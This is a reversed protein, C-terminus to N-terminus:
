NIFLKKVPYPAINSNLSILYIGFKLFDASIEVESRQGFDSKNYVVRGQVDYVNLSKIYEHDNALKFWITSGKSVMHYDKVQVTKIAETSTLMNCDRNSFKLETGTGNRYCILRSGRSFSSVSVSSIVTMDTNLPGVEDLITPHEANLDQSTAFYRYNFRKIKRSSQNLPSIFTTDILEISFNNNQVSKLKTVSGITTKYVFALMLSDRNLLFISDNRQVMFYPNVTFRFLSDRGKYRLIESQEFKKFAINGILTDKTYKVTSIGKEARGPPTIVIEYDRTEFYYNWEAGINPAFISQAKVYSMFLIYFIAAIFAIKRKM